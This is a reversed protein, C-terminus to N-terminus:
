RAGANTLASDYVRDLAAGSVASTFQTARVRGAAILRDREAAARAPVDAWADLDLPLVIAADGAVEPLCTSDACVVPVGLTMAEILPAGFGEYESPFVMAAAAALLGNRDAASVRGLRRVRRDTCAAVEAEAAGEGGILVLRLDLDTWRTRMLALLFRHNKHPHTIAPYVLLPGDGLAFRRRLEDAATIGDADVLTPEIGHPVVHVREPAVGFAAVVTGRVFETPVAIAAARQASRPLVAGFFLRKARSFNQPLDRYQLDHITLVYPRRARWPATGGGHHVLGSSATRRRLWTSEAFIRRPRSAGDIPAAIVTCQAALDPHAEAFGPLVDLELQWHPAVERLGLLQRVLYEESGGVKGPVCWLLNVAVNGDRERPM